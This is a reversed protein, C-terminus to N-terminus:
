LKRATTLIAGLQVGALRAPEALGGPAVAEAESAWQEFLESLGAHAARIDPAHNGIALEADLLRLSTGCSRLRFLHATQSIDFYEAVTAAADGVDEAQKRLSSSLREPIRRFETLASGFPSGPVRLRGFLPDLHRGLAPEIDAVLEAAARLLEAHSRGSTCSDGSRWDLWMPVEVILSFTGYRNAYHHSGSGFSVPKGRESYADQIEEASPFVFVGTGLRKTGPLEADGAHLPVGAITAVEALDPVLDPLEGTVYYYTGGFEANHLSCMFAPRVADIARILAQTEPLVRDFYGPGDHVVPFTWEAQHELAPRYFNRAYNRRTLPGSYWGQNLRAADPDICSILHWTYGLEERLEDDTCLLTAFHAITHFGVPENSHPGAYVLAPRPGCGITLLHLPDGLRSTGIRARHAVKPYREALSSFTREVDDPGPFHDSAPIAALLIKLRDAFDTM